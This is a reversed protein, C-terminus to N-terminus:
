GFWGKKKFWIIMGISLAFMIVMVILYGFHWNLEPMNVFNMGYIGAIFTLPAFISTIVTLIQIVKNQQYSNMSIFNDRIDNSIERNSNIMESLKLLHDYIDAFYERHEEIGKLRHSYLIRYFLDRIPHIAHRLELLQHRLEFLNELLVDMSKNETNEDVETILDELEAIVPFYNDVVHDMVKYFVHYPDWKSINTHENMRDWTAQIETLPEFHFTVIFRTSVFFDIEYQNFTEPGMTHTVFFAFDDYYDLKPRQMSYLCDEIALPHFHLETDLKRIEDETPNNFDAWWWKAEKIATQNIHDYTHLTDDDAITMLQIM